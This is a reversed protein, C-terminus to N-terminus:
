NCSGLPTAKLQANRHYSSIQGHVSDQFLMELGFEAKQYTQVQMIAAVQKQKLIGKSIM